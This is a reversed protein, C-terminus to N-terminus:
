FLGLQVPAPEPERRPWRRARAAAVPEDAAAHAPWCSPIRAFDEECRRWCRRRTSRPPRTTSRTSSCRRAASRCRSRGATSARSAPRAPRDAAQHRLQRAHLDGQPRILAIQAFLHRECAEIEDPQPDRNGPPRCKLVNAIYVDSAASASRRSCSTSCSARRASSRARGPPGRPLRAGRGRVDPRRRPRRQRGRGPHPGRLARLAHVLAVGRVPASSPADREVADEHDAIRARCASPTRTSRTRETAAAAAAAAAAAVAAASWPARPGRPPSPRSCGRSRPAAATPAPRRDDGASVLEEFRRPAARACTSTSRCPWLM